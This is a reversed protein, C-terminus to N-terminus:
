CINCSVECKAARCSESAGSSLCRVRYQMWCMLQPEKLRCCIWLFLPVLVRKPKTVICAHSSWSKWTWCMQLFQKLNQNSWHINDWMSWWWWRQKTCAEISATLTAASKCLSLSSDQDPSLCVASFSCLGLFFHASTTDCGKFCVNISCLNHLLCKLYMIHTISSPSRAVQLSIQVM